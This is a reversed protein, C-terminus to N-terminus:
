FFRVRQETQTQIWKNRDDLESRILRIRKMIEQNRTLVASARINAELLANVLPTSDMNKEVLSPLKQAFSEVLRHRGFLISYNLHEILKLISYQTALCSSAGQFYLYDDRSPVYLDSLHGFDDEVILDKNEKDLGLATTVVSDFSNFFPPQFLKSWMHKKLSLSSNGHLFKSILLDEVFKVVIEVSQANTKFYNPYFECLASRLV